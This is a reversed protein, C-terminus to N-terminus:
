DGSKFVSKMPALVVDQEQLLYRLRSPRMVQPQCYHLWSVPRRLCLPLTGAAAATNV